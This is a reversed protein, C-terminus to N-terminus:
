FNIKAAVQGVRPLGQTGTIRGFQGSGLATNPLAFQPTNFVNFYEFRLQVSVRDTIRTNKILSLDQNAAGPGRVDPLTRGTNGLTFSAPQVFQRTDFWRDISEGRTRSSDIAASIGTSNPRNGGGPITASLVLPVGGRHSTIGNIQWGGALAAAFGKAASFM